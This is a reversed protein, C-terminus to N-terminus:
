AYLSEIEEAYKQHIVRRKLKLTPTLEESDVTWETPLITFRKIQEVQSVHQNADDVARQIEATVRPDTSLEAVTTTQLGNQTAWIPAGEGDLVILASVYRKGDGVVCAQGVLPHRKLLSELNSPSINKGGATIILEKKRDVVRYYGDEDIVGIDGTHLWGESDFTEATKEPDKYYGPSINGGRVLIEGDDALKVEVGPLAVGVTGMKIRDPPNATAPGTDETMGYIELLPLGIGAFFELTDRSIPAASTVQLISRDLGIKQRIKSYVLKDFVGRKLKLSLPVPKGEAELRAAERGAEIAAMAIKRKRQDHEAALAATVGAHVKEWVRPVGLFAQPRVEPVVEFIRLVDPCFHVHALKYMGLYHTALREAVHALPLYSIAKLGTPYKLDRDLSAITWVVNRHTIMVAKPPGTTGSTYVLTALDDPKVERWSREFDDRGGPAELAKTGRSVLDDWSLVWEYDSFDEVDQLLIVHELNPLDAKVKEWREMFERGEVVAVKAECHNAIYSIQEPALTNYLSVPTAGAHVAGMDAIAHEPRNRTMIAVFDGRGVGLSKLGLTVAAVRDRYERWTLSKWDTGEQWSIAPRGGYNEANRAFFHALTKGEVEADIAAREALVEHTATAM